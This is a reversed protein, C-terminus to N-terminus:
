REEGEVCYPKGNPVFDPAGRSVHVGERAGSLIIITEQGVPYNMFLVANSRPSCYMGESEVRSYQDPVVLLLFTSEAGSSVLDILVSGSPRGCAFTSGYPGGAVLLCIQRDANRGIYATVSGLALVRRWEDPVNVSTRRLGEESILPDDVPRHPSDLVSYSHTFNELFKGPPSDQTAPRVCGSLFVPWVSLLVVLARWCRWSKRSKVLFGWPSMRGVTLGWVGRGVVAPGEGKPRREGRWGKRM